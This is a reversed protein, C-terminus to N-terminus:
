SCQEMRSSDKEMEKLERHVQEIEARLSKLEMLKKYFGMEILWETHTKGERTPEENYLWHSKKTRSIEYLHIESFLKNEKRNVMELLTSYKGYMAREKRKQNMHEDPLAFSKFSGKIGNEAAVLRFSEARTEPTVWGDFLDDWFTGLEKFAQKVNEPVKQKTKLLIARIMHKGTNHSMKTICPPQCKQCASALIVYTKVLKAQITRAFM